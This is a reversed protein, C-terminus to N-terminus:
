LGVKGAQKFTEDEAESLRDGNLFVTFSSGKFVVRLTNWQKGPIERKVGYARSPLGKPAISLRVGASVKYLVVNNELANARVIYYNNPDRYRWVIGAARDISGDVAKFAVSVEGNRVSAREWIALPFRGATTDRSLQALVLPAHPASDDRVIEWKPAGGSHTMAVSWGPPLSGEAVHDFRIVEARAAAYAASRDGDVGEAM